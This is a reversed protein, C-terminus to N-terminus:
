RRKDNRIISYLNKAKQAGGLYSPNICDRENFDEFFVMSDELDELYVVHEGNKTKLKQTADYYAKESAALCRFPCYHSTFHLNKIAALNQPPMLLINSPFLIKIAAEIEEVPFPEGRCLQDQGYEIIVVDPKYRAVDLAQFVLPKTGSRNITEEIKMMRSFSYLHAGTAWSGIEERHNLWFVNLGSLRDDGIVALTKSM